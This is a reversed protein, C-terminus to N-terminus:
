WEYIFDSYARLGDASWLHVAGRSITIVEFPRGCDNNIFTNNACSNDEPPSVELAQLVSAFFEPVKTLMIVDTNGVSAQLATDITQFPSVSSGNGAFSHSSDVYVELSLVEVTTLMISFFVLIWSGPQLFKITQLKM